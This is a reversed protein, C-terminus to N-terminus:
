GKPMEDGFRRLAGLAATEDLALARPLFLSGGASVLIVGELSQAACLLRRPSARSHLRRVSGRGSSGDLDPAHGCQGNGDVRANRACREACETTRRLEGPCVAYGVGGHPRPYETVRVSGITAWLHSAGCPGNWHTCWERWAPRGRGRRECLHDLSRAKQRVARRQAPRRGAYRSDTGSPGVAVAAGHPADPGARPLGFARSLRPPNPRARRCARHM